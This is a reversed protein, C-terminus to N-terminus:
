KIEEGKSELKEQKCNEDMLIRLAPTHCDEYQGNLVSWIFLLLFIVGVSVSVCILLFLIEM